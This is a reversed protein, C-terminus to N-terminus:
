KVFQSFPDRENMFYVMCTLGGVCVSWAGGFIKNNVTIKLSILRIFYYLKVRAVIFGGQGM